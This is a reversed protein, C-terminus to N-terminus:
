YFRASVMRLKASYYIVNLRAFICYRYNLALVLFDYRQIIADNGRRM